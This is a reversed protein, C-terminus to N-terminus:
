ARTSPGPPFLGERAPSVNPLRQSKMTIRVNQRRNVAKSTCHFDSLPLRCPLINEQKEVAQSHAVLAHLTYIITYLCSDNNGKSAGQSRSEKVRLRNSSPKPTSVDRSDRLGEQPTLRGTVSDLDSGELDPRCSSTPRASRTCPRGM